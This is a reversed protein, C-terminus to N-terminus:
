APLWDQDGCQKWAKGAATWNWDNMFPRPHEELWTLRQGISEIASGDRFSHRDVRVVEYGLAIIQRERERERLISVRAAEQALPASESTANLWESSTIESSAMVKSDQALLGTHKAVGDYEVVLGCPFLFDVRGVFRGDRRRIVVQQFPPPFGAEWMALKLETERPSESWPTILNLAEKAVVNGARSAFAPMLKEPLFERWSIVGRNLADEAAICARALGKDRAHWMALQTVVDPISATLIEGYETQVTVAREWVGTSIHRFVVHPSYEFPHRTIRGHRTKAACDIRGLEVSPIGQEHHAPPWPEALMHLLAASRGVVIAKRAGAVQSAIIQRQGSQSTVQQYDHLTVFVGPALRVLNGKKFERYLWSRQKTDLEASVLFCSDGDLKGWM